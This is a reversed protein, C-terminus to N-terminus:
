LLWPLCVQLEGDSLSTARSGGVLDSNLVLVVAPVWHIGILVRELHVPRPCSPLSKFTGLSHSLLWAGLDTPLEPPGPLGAAGAQQRTTPHFAAGPLHSPTHIHRHVGLGSGVRGPGIKNLQKRSRKASM